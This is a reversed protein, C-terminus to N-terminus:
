PCPREKLRDLVDTLTDVDGVNGPFVVYRLGPISSGDGLAWMSIKGPLMQGLVFARRAHLARAATDHSTIGGKAVIWAPPRQSVVSEVISTVTDAVLSSATHSPTSARRSASETAPPVFRRSTVLAADGAGLAKVLSSTARRIIAEREEEQASNLKDIDLAVTTFRHRLQAAALQATTLETHSGVVLLGPGAEPEIEEATLPMATGRGARASVFSPGTRYLINLGQGEASSVARAVHLLDEPSEANAIMYRAHKFGAILTESARDPGERLVSLPISGVAVDAGCREAAWQALNSSRYGFRADAAFETDAVPVWRDGVRVQHVDDITVRGAEPFAPCLLVGDVPIGGAGLGDALAEVEGPFHGRLTSDSRSIVRLRINRDGALRALRAGITRNIEVAEPEPLARSNTLVAFLPSAAEMAWALDEDDWTTVLPIGAATQIGTPDDDVVAIRESDAVLVDM